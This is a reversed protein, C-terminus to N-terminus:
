GPNYFVTVAESIWDSRDSSFKLDGVRVASWEVGLLEALWPAGTVDASPIRAGTAPRWPAMRAGTRM